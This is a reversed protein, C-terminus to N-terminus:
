PGAAGIVRAVGIGEEQRGRSGKRGGLATVLLPERDRVRAGSRAGALGQVAAGALSRRRAKQGREEESGQAEGRGHAGTVVQWPQQWTAQCAAAAATAQGGGHEPVLGEGCRRRWRSNDSSTQKGEERGGLRGKGHRAGGRSAAEGRRQERARGGFRARGRRWGHEAGGDAM